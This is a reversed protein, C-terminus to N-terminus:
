RHAGSLDEEVERLRQQLASNERQRLSGDGAGGDRDQQHDRSLGTSNFDAVGDHEGATSSASADATTISDITLGQLPGRDISSSTLRSSTSVRAPVHVQSLEEPDALSSSYASGTGDINRASAADPEAARSRADLLLQMIREKVDSNRALEKMATNLATRAAGGVDSLTLEVLPELGGCASLANRNNDDDTCEDCIAAVVAAIEAVDLGAVSHEGGHLKSVLEQLQRVMPAMKLEAIELRNDEDWGLERLASSLAREITPGHGSRLLAILRPLAGLEGFRAVNSHDDKCLQTISKAHDCLAEADMLGDDPHQSLGQEEALKLKGM